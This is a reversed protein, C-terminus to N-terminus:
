QSASPDPTPAGAWTVAVSHTGGAGTFTVTGSGPTRPSSAELTITVTYTANVGLHGSSSSLSLPASTAATWDLETGTATLVVDCTTDSEGLDCSSVDIAFTPVPAPHSEGSSPPPTDPDSGSDDTGVGDARTTTTVTTTPNASPPTNGKGHFAMLAFVVGGALVLAAVVGAVAPWWRRGGPRDPPGGASAMRATPEPAAVMTEARGIDATAPVAATVGEALIATRQAQEPAAGPVADHGLLRMLLLSAAPRAAPDKNLCEAVLSRLRGTLAGLLPEENVIRHALVALTDRGFPPIGNAAYVLTAGWAFVDAAPTIEGGTVQEPAMYAPTGLAHGTMTAQRDMIRAIGFDIVRPGDPGILVNPPKLDRHVVGAQHIAVLATATGIALRDLAGGQLPGQESVLAQLSPGPVYESVIYPRDGAIDADLVQATCFRAVQKAAAAERAFREREGGAVALQTQLLKVAVQESTTTEGLYVVGYGGRGLRGVLTYPGLSEPDEPLRPSIDPM